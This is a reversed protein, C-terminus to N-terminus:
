GRKWGCDLCALLIDGYEWGIKDMRKMNTKDQNPVIWTWTWGYVPGVIHFKRHGIHLMGWVTAAGVPSPLQIYIVEVNEIIIIYRASLVRDQVKDLFLLTLVLWVSFLELILQSFSVM